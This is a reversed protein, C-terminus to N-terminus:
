SGITLRLGNTLGFAPGGGALNVIVGQSFVDVGILSPISPVPLNVAAPSGAGAWPTPGLQLVPNPGGVAILLEGTPGSMGWGPIGFGTGTAAFTADPATSVGVFALSGAPQTGLPNDVGFAMVTGVQPAGSAVTLSGVPNGGYATAIAPQIVQGRVEGGGFASSHVNVYHLGALMDGVQAPSLTGGGSVSGSTGGTVSLGIVIGGSTGIPAPGHIHAATAGGSLGSYSGSVSVAGTGIDLTVICTGSGASPVPPVEQSPELDFTFTQASAAAALAVVASAFLLKRM